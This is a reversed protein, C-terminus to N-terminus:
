YYFSEKPSRSVTQPRTFVVHGCSLRSFFCSFNTRTLCFSSTWRIQVDKSHPFFRSHRFSDPGPGEGVCARQLRKTLGAEYEQWQPVELVCVGSQKARNVGHSGLKLLWRCSLPFFYRCILQFYTGFGGVFVGKNDSLRSVGSTLPFEGFLENQLNIPIQWFSEAELNIPIGIWPRLCSLPYIPLNAVSSIVTRFASFRPKKLIM